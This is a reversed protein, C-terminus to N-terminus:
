KINKFSSTWVYAPIIAKLHFGVSRALQHSAKKAIWATWCPTLGHRLCDEIIRITCQKAYGQNRYVANTWVALEVQKRGSMFAKCYSITEKEQQIVATMYTKKSTYGQERKMMVNSPEVVCQRYITPDFEFTCREDLVGNFRKILQHMSPNIKSSHYLLIMEQKQHKKIYKVICKEFDKIIHKDEINGFVYHYDSFSFLIGYEPKLIDNVFLHGDFQGEFFSYIAPISHTYAQFCHAFHKIDKEKVLELMKFGKM